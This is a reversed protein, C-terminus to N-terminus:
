SPREDCRYEPLHCHGTGYCDWCKGNTEEASADLGTGGCNDCCGPM